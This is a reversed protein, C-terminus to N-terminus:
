PRLLGRIIKGEEMDRFAENIQELRYYKTAFEDLKLKGEKYLRLYKVADIRPSVSGYYCGKITKENRHLDFAPISINVDSREVGVIIATGGRRPLRYALEMAQAKGVAEFAYDVGEDDTLSRVNEYVDEKSANITHTAGFERAWNLKSDFVDVAIIPDAGALRAGQVINMGVGGLGIVAVSSGAKVDATNLVAGVGTLTACGLIGAKEMPVGEPLKVLSREDVVARESYTATTTFHHVPTNEKNIIKVKGSPLTGKVIAARGNKCLHPRGSLCYVCNYCSPMWVTLVADGVDFDKVKDGKKEVYGAGEHGPVIPTPMYPYYGRSLSLDSHCIGSTTIKMLVENDDPELVTTDEVVLPKGFEYVIASRSNVM